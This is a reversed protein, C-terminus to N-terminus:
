SAPSVTVIDPAFTSAILSPLPLLVFKFAVNVITLASNNLGGPNTANVILRSM